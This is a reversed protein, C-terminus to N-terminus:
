TKGVRRAQMATYTLRPMLFLCTMYRGALRKPQQLLRWVWELALIQFLKPARKQTGAIFDLGAGISVFGTGPLVAAATAAFCEQKPAGLALLCLQADAAKLMDTAKHADPGTPDFGMPPAIRAVVQLGLHRRSLEAAAKDLVEQTSGLFAVSIGLEAAIHCLPNILDSGTTLDIQQGALRSLWVIPNGDATIHSHRRYAANFDPNQRLKVVHDLNLTAILFGDRRALRARVDELLAKSSPVNVVIPAESSKSNNVMDWNM